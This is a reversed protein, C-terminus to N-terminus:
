RNQENNRLHRLFKELSSTSKIGPSVEFRSNLDLGLLRPHNLTAITEIDDPGVGGGLMFDTPLAYDNLLQWDFKRGTGGHQRSKKDLVFRDVAGVYEGMRELDGRDEIGIAKWVEFGHGRLRRCVEPSEQGHLQIAHLRYIDATSIIEDQPRDVFVGVFKMDRRVSDLMEPSLGFANRPSPQHFILGLYDPQLGIVERINVPSTMGCIKVELSM